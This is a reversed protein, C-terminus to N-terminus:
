VGPAGATVQVPFSLALTFEAAEGKDVTLGDVFFARPDSSLGELLRILAPGDYAATIEARLVDSSTEAEEEDVVTIRPSAIGAATTASALHQELDIRAMWIDSGKISREAAIRLQDADGAGVRRRGDVVRERRATLDADALAYAERRRAAFDASMVTVAGLSVLALVALLWRERQALGRWAVVIRDTMGQAAGIM